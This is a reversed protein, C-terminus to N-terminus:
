SVSHSRPHGQKLSVPVVHVFTKWAVARFSCFSEPRGDAMNLVHEDGQEVPYEFMVIGPCGPSDFLGRGPSPRCWKLRHMAEMELVESSRGPCGEKYVLDDPEDAVDDVCLPCPESFLQRSGECVPCLEEVDSSKDLLVLSHTRATRKKRSRRKACRSPGALSCSTADLHGEKEGVCSAVVEQAELPSNLRMSSAPRVSAEQAHVIALEMLMLIQIMFDSWSNPSARFLQVWDRPHLFPRGVLPPSGLWGEIFEFIDDRQAFQRKAFFVAERLNEDDDVIGEIAFMDVGVKRFISDTECIGCLFCTMDSIRLEQWVICLRQTLAPDEFRLVALKQELTLAGWHSKVALVAASSLSSHSTGEFKAGNRRAKWQAKGHSM